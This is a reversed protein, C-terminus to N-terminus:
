HSSYVKKMQSHDRLIKKFGRIKSLVISLLIGQNEVISANEQQETANTGTHREKCYDCYKMDVILYSSQEGQTINKQKEFASNAGGSKKTTTINKAKSENM